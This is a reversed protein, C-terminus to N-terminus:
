DQTAMISLWLREGKAQDAPQDIIHIKGKLLTRLTRLSSFSRMEAKYVRECHGARSDMELNESVQWRKEPCSEHAYCFINKELMTSVFKWIAVTLMFRFYKCVYKWVYSSTEVLFLLIYTNQMNVISLVWLGKYLLVVSCISHWIYDTYSFVIQAQIQVLM